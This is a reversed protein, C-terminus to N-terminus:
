WGGGGGGGGGGGSSGGGGSGSSSSSQPMAGTVGSAMSSVLASNLAHVGRGSRMTTWGPSYARAEEPLVREFHTTWPKEVGLAIAYPLFREYREVTMPPPAESGVEVANLQLTEAKELYLRFGEIATRTDQGKPTPAPMLYMFWGNLAALALVGGTHWATWSSASRVAIIVAIVTLPVAVVAYIPNWKFYASGYDKGVRRRFAQYARTFSANYRKGLTLAGGGAFLSRELALAAEGPGDTQTEPGASAVPPTQTLQTTKKDPADIKLRGTVAFSMLTAILADHGRFGRRYVHHVAAPSYGEPPAYHPFVPRKAPDRGVANFGRWYFAFLGGLSGLLILISGNRQWWLASRDAASPPDILGKQFGVSVTLGEGVAFPRAAQFVHADGDARYSYDAGSAGLPGTYAAAQIVEGGPPLIVTASAAEIPFAWYNGTANWYVEDYDDFYRVQNAARYRIEYVHAGSDLLVDADGIRIRWAAGDTSTEYPERAGDRTVSLVDYDYRLRDGDATYFRPLDRFIGRRIQNGEATVDITETVVIDGDTEVEIVVDFRNIREQAAAPLAASVALAAAAVLARSLARM